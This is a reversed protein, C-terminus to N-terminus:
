EKAKRKRLFALLLGVAVGGLFTTFLLVARPMSVTIFLLRTDVTETNQLVLILVVAGVVAVMAIRFYPRRRAPAGSGSDSSTEESM